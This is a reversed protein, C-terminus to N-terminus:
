GPRRFADTRHMRAIDHRGRDTVNSAHGNFYSSVAIVLKKVLPRSNGSAEGYVECFFRCLCSGADSCYTTAHMGVRGLEEQGTADTLAACEYTQQLPDHRCQASM